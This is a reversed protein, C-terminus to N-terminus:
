FIKALLILLSGVLTIVKVLQRRDEGRTEWILLISTIALALLMSLMPPLTMFGQLDRVLGVM